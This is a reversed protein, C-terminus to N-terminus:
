KKEQSEDMVKPINIYKYTLLNEQFAYMNVQM